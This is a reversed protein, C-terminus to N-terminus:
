KATVGLTHLGAASARALEDPNDGWVEVSVPSDFGIDGIGDFVLEWRVGGDGPLRRDTDTM